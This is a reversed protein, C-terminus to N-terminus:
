YSLVLGLRYEKHRQNYDLLNEAYGQFIQLYIAPNMNSSAFNYILGIQYAGNNLDILKSGAFLRLELDLNQNEYVILNSVSIKLDWYGIHEVIDKNTEEINYSYYTMLNFDLNHRNLKSIYNARLYVRDVSKSEIGKKGNSLHLYGMDLTKFTNNKKDLFRYFAEPLYNIEKFPKSKDYISWFMLQSFGLYLPIARAFRYKFSFQMKLDNLGIIFYNPQYLSFKESMILGVISENKKDMNDDSIVNVYAYTGSSFFLLTFLLMFFIPNSNKLM